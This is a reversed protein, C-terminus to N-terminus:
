ISYVFSASIGVLIYINCIIYLVKKIYYKYDTGGEELPHIGGGGLM